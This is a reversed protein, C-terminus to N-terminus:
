IASLADRAGKGELTSFSRGLSYIGGGGCRSPTGRATLPSFIARRSLSGPHVSFCSCPPPFVSDEVYLLFLGALSTSLAQRDSSPCGRKVAPTSPYSWPPRAHRLSFVSFTRVLTRKTM